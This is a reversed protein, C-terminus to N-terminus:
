TTEVWYLTEIFLFCAGFPTAFPNRSYSNLLAEASGPCHRWPFVSILLISSRQPITIVEAEFLDELRITTFKESDHAGTLPEPDWRPPRSIVMPRDRDTQEEFEPGMVKTALHRDGTVRGIGATDLRSRRHPEDM